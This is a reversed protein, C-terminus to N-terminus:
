RKIRQRLEAQSPSKCQSPLPILAAFSILSEKHRPSFGISADWDEIVGFLLIGCQVAARWHLSSSFFSSQVVSVFLEQRALAGARCGTVGAILRTQSADRQAFTKAPAVTEQKYGVTETSM